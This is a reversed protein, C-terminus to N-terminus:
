WVWLLYLWMIFPYELHYYCCAHTYTSTHLNPSDTQLGCNLNVYWLSNSTYIANNNYYNLLKKKGNFLDSAEISIVSTTGMILWCVWFAAKLPFIGYQLIMSTSLGQHLCVSGQIRQCLTFGWEFSSCFFFMLSMLMMNLRILLGHKSDSKLSWIHYAAAKSSNFLMSNVVLQKPRLSCLHDWHLYWLPPSVIKKTM